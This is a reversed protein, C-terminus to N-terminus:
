FAHLATKQSIVCYPLVFISPASCFVETSVMESIKQPSNQLVGM